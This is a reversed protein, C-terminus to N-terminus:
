QEGFTRRGTWVREGSQSERESRKRVGVGGGWWGVGGRVGGRAGGGETATQKAHSNSPIPEAGGDRLGERRGEM